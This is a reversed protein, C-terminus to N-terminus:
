KAPWSLGCAAAAEAMAPPLHEHVSIGQLKAQELSRMLGPVVGALVVVEPGDDFYDQMVVVLEPLARDLHILGSCDVLVAPAQRMVALMKVRGMAEDLARRDPDGVLFLAPLNTALSCVLQSKEMVDRYHVEAKQEVAAMFAETVVVMMTQYLRAPEPGLVDALANVLAVTDAIGLGGGAMWGATFSLVQVPERFEPAGMELAGNHTIAEALTQLFHQCRQRLLDPNFPIGSRRKDELVDGLRAEHASAPATDPPRDLATRLNWSRTALAEMWREILEQQRRQLDTALQQLDKMAGIM